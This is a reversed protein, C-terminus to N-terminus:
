VTPENPRDSSWDPDKLDKILARVTELTYEKMIDLQAEVLTEVHEYPVNDFALQVLQEAAASLVTDIEAALAAANGQDATPQGSQEHKDQEYNEECRVSTGEPVEVGLRVETGRGQVFTVAVEDGITLVEGAHITIVLM